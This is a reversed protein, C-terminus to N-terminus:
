YCCLQTLLFELTIICLILSIQFSIHGICVPYAIIRFKLVLPSILGSRQKNINENLFPKRKCAFLIPSCLLFKEFIKFPNLHKSLMPQGEPIREVAYSSFHLVAMM